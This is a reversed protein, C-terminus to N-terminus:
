VSGSRLVGSHPFAGSLPLPFSSSDPWRLDCLSLPVWRLVGSVCLGLNGTIRFGELQPLSGLHSELFHEWM